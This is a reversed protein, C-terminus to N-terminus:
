LDRGYTVVTQDERRRREQVTWGLREYFPMEGFALLVARGCGAERAKTTFADVLAAGAGGGRAEPLVAVHLLVATPVVARVTAESAADARPTARLARLYKVARSRLFAWLAAPRLVLAVAAAPLLTRWQRRLLLRHFGPVTSGVVFGVPKEPGAMVVLAVAGPADVFAGLYHRLFRPGLRAFFGGRLEQAHLRAAFAVHEPRMAQVNPPAGAGGATM